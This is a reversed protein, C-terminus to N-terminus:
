TFDQTSAGNNGMNDQMAEDDESSKDVENCEKAIDDVFSYSHWRKPTSTVIMVHAVNEAHALFGVLRPPPKISDVM